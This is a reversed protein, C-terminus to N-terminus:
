QNVHRLVNRNHVKSMVNTADFSLFIILFIM